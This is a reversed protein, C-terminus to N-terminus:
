TDEKLFQQANGFYEVDVSELKLFGNKIKPYHELFM